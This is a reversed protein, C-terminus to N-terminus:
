ISALCISCESAPAPKAQFLRSKLKRSYKRLTIHLSMALIQLVILLIMLYGASQNPTLRLINVNSVQLYVPFINNVLFLCVVHKFSCLKLTKSQINEVIQPVLTLCNILNFIWFSYWVLHSYIYLVMALGVLKEWKM